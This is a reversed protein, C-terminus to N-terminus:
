LTNTLQMYYISIYKGTVIEHNNSNLFAVFHSYSLIEVTRINENENYNNFSNV